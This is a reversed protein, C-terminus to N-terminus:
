CLPTIFLFINQKLDQYVLLAFYRSILILLPDNQPFNTLTMSCVTQCVNVSNKVSPTPCPIRYPKQMHIMIHLCLYTTIFFQRLDKSKHQPNRCLSLEPATNSSHVAPGFCIAPVWFPRRSQGLNKACCPLM